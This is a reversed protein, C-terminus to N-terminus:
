RGGWNISPGGAGGGIFSATEGSENPNMWHWHEKELFADLLYVAFLSAGIAALLGVSRWLKKKDSPLPIPAKRGRQWDERWESASRGSVEGGVEGQWLKSFGSSKTPSPAPQDWLDKYPDAGARFSGASFRDDERMM